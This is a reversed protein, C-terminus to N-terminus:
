SLFIKNDEIEINEIKIDFTNYDDETFFYVESDANKSDNKLENLKNILETLTM